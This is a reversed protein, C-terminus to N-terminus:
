YTQVPSYTWSRERYWKTIIYKTGATVPCGQHLTAHNPEGLADLNNWVLLNGARPAIKLGAKEFGTQGGGEPANLFAMATWTRQGGTAEMAPWYDEGTHFFDHHPKFQQGVTYRQGQITEGHEPYIGLLTTIKGEVQWVLPHLPDLNCSESTRFEPDESPSLLQSPIRKADILEMLGACEEPSLFNRVVFIDLDNSPIRFASPNGLLRDKVWQGIAIKYDVVNQSM